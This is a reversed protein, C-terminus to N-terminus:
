TVSPEISNNSTVESKNMNLSSTSSSISQKKNTKSYSKSQYEYDKFLYYPNVFCVAEKEFTKIVEDLESTCRYQNQKIKYMM